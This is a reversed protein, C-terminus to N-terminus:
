QIYTIKWIKIYLVPIKDNRCSKNKLNCITKQVKKYRIPAFKFNLISVHDKNWFNYTRSRLCHYSISWNKHYLHFINVSYFKFFRRTRDSVLAGNQKIGTITQGSKSGILNNITNWIERIDGLGCYFKDKFYNEKCRKILFNYSNKFAAYSEHTLEGNRYIYIYWAKNRIVQKSGQWVM